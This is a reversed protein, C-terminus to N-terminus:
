LIRWKTKAEKSEAKYKDIIALVDAITEIDGSMAKIEARIKDIVPEQWDKLGEIAMEGSEKGCAIDRLEQELEEIEKFVDEGRNLPKYWSSDERLYNYILPNTKIKYIYDM